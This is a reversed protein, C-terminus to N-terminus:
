LKNKLSVLSDNFISVLINNAKPNIYTRITGIGLFPTRKKVLTSKIFPIVVIRCLSM